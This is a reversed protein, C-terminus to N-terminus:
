RVIVEGAGQRGKVRQKRQAADIKSAVAKQLVLTVNLSM